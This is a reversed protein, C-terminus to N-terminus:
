CEQEHIEISTNFKVLFRENDVALKGGFFNCIDNLVNFVLKFQSGTFIGKADEKNILLFNVAFKNVVTLNVIINEWTTNRAFVKLISEIIVLFVKKNGFFKVKEIEGDFVTRIKGEGIQILDEKLVDVKFEEKVSPLTDLYKFYVEDIGSLFSDFAETNIVKSKYYELLKYKLNFIRKSVEKIAEVDLKANQTIKNNADLIKTYAKNKQELRTKFIENQKILDYYELGQYIAPLFEEENNWPKTIYKFVGVRNVTAIVQSIQAYGSLVIRITDPSIEKVKELLELGNMKPMKMDTVIVAIEKESFEILAEEGSIATLTNFKESITIRNISNLINIEDDVFLVNYKAM